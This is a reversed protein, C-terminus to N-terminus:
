LLKRKIFDWIINVSKRPHILVNKFINKYNERRYLLYGKNIEHHYEESNQEKKLLGNLYDFRWQKPVKKEDIVHPLSIQDIKIYQEFLFPISNNFGVGVIAGIKCPESAMDFVFNGLSYYIRSGKYDEYGQLVHPHM